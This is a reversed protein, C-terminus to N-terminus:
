QSGLFSEEKFFSSGKKKLLSSLAQACADLENNPHIFAM